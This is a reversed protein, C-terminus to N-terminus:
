YRQAEANQPWLLYIRIGAAGKALLQQSYVTFALMLFSNLIPQRLGQVFSSLERRVVGAPCYGLLCIVLLM